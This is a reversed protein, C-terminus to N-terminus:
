LMIEKKKRETKEEIKENYKDVLDQLDDKARFKDDERIEGEKTKEQIESWAKERWRRITQRSEEKKESLIANLAKRNEETPSPFSLRILDKDIIPSVGLSSRNLAKEISELYSRDWPQIVLQRGEGLSIAALQRLVFKQNFCDVEIDEVLSPSLHGTRIKALEGELFVITKDLEPRINDIIEKHQM